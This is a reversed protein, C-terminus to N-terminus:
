GRFINQRHYELLNQDPLFRSPLRIEKNVYNTIFELNHRKSEQKYVLPSVVIRLDESISILGKDFARDHLANLCLGNRPNLRNNTDISWPVIHSAILLESIYIGTICCTNDYASLIMKRFFGQNIVFFGALQGMAYLVILCGAGLITKMYRDWLKDTNLVSGLVFFYACMHLLAVLGEMREYNSWFSRYFSAGFIDAVTMVALFAGVSYLILSKKPLYSNDRLALIAWVAFIIEVIVRFVFNKGTIFPFFMTNAVYLPIFPVLFIGTLIVGRLIKNLM